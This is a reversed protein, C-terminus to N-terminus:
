SKQGTASLTFYLGDGSAQANIVQAAQAPTVALLFDLNGAGATVATPAGTGTGPTTAIVRVGTLLMRTSGGKKSAWVTIANGPVVYRLGGPAFGLEVGLGEQGKPLVVGGATAVGQAGFSGPVVVEGKALARLAVQGNLAAPDTLAGDPVADVPLSRVTLGATAAPTGAAVPVGAVVVDKKKGGGSDNGGSAMAVLLAVGALALVVGAIVVPNIKRM